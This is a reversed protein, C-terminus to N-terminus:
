PQFLRLWLQFHSRTTNQSAIVRASASREKQDLGYLKARMHLFMDKIILPFPRSMSTHYRTNREKWILYVSAQFLLKCIVKIRPNASCTKVWMLVDEFTSPSILGSYAFITTWLELSYTCSFFIHDRTEDAADCLLCTSPINMGGAKFETEHLCGTVLPSGHSSLTNLFTVKSSSMRMGCFLQRLPIFPTGHRPRVSFRLLPDPPIGGCSCMMM